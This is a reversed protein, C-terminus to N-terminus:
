YVKIERDKFDTNKLISKNKSLYTRAQKLRTQKPIGLGYEEKSPCSFM